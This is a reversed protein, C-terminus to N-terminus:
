AGAPAPEQHVAAPAEQSAPRQRGIRVRKFSEFSGSRGRRRGQSRYRKLMEERDRTSVQSRHCLIADVKKEIFPTIDVFYDPSDSGALLLENVPRAKLGEALHEEYYLHDRVAPYLADRVAIGINRHDIHNFGTRFGDWTLVVDVEYKKLLRVIQGRLEATPYVFGDPYGLFIVDKVGLVAAAERQEQERMAALEQRTLNEHTGKDGSTALVYYVTWGESCFKAITGASTFDIDDPHAMIAMLTKPGELPPLRGGRGAATAGDRRLLSPLSLQM